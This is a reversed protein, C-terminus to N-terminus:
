FAFPSHIQENISGLCYYLVLLLLPLLRLASKLRSDYFWFWLLLLSWHSSSFINKHDM